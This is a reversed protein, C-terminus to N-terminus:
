RGDHVALAWAAIMTAHFRHYPEEDAALDGFSGDARQAAVLAAAWRDIDPGRGGALELMLLREAFLDVALAAPGPASPQAASLEALLPAVRADFDPLCGHDRALVLAWVAHTTHYGGADRMPGTVYALTEPRLGNDRCHLAEAVARNVNVRPEGPAPIAWTTTARPEVRATEDYARRLPNDADRDAVARAHAEAVRLADSDTHARIGAIAIAADFRLQDVPVAAMWAAARAVPTEPARPPADKACGVAIVALVLLVRTVAALM